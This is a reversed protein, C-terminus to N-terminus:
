AKPKDQSWENLDRENRAPVASVQLLEMAEGVLYLSGCIVLSPDDATQKLAESLSACVSVPAPCGARGIIPLLEQPPLSRESKVPTLVLRGALPALRAIM